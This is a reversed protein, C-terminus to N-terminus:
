ILNIRLSLKMSKSVKAADAAVAGAGRERIGAVYAIGLGDAISWSIM